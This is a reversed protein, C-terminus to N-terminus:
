VLSEPGFSDPLLEGISSLVSAGDLGVLRVKSDTGFERLVQLSEGEVPNAATPDDVLLMLEPRRVYGATRATRM